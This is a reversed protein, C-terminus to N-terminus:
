WYWGTKSHAMNKAAKCFSISGLINQLEQKWATLQLLFSSLRISQTEKTCIIIGMWPWTSMKWNQYIKYYSSSDHTRFARCFWGQHPFLCWLIASSDKRVYGRGFAGETGTTSLLRWVTSRRNKLLGAGLAYLSNVFNDVGSKCLIHQMAKVRRSAIIVIMTSEYLSNSRASALGSVSFSAEDYIFIFCSPNTISVTAPFCTQFPDYGKPNQLFINYEVVM